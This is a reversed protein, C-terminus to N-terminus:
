CKEGAISNAIGINTLNYYLRGKLEKEIVEGSISEGATPVTPVRTLRWANYERGKSDVIKFYEKGTKIKSPL